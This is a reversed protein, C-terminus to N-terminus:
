AEPKEKGFFLVWTAFDDSFRTFRHPVRAPVFLLDGTVFALERGDLDFTGNGRAIIYIEDRSHPTQNDHGRPAYLEVQIGDQDFLNKFYRGASDPLRRCVEEVTIKPPLNAPM